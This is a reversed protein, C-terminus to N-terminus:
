TIAITYYYKNNGIYVRYASHGEWNWEYLFPMIKKIKVDRGEFMVENQVRVDKFGFYLLYIKKIDADHRRTAGLNYQANFTKVKERTLIGDRAFVLPSIWGIVVTLTVIVLLIYIIKKFFSNKIM